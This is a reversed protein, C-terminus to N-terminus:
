EYVPNFAVYEHASDLNFREDFSSIDLEYWENIIISLSKGELYAPDISDGVAFSFTMPNEPDKLMSLLLSEYGAGFPHGIQRMPANYLPIVVKTLNKEQIEDLLGSYIETRERFYEGHQIVRAIQFIFLCGIIPIIFSQKMEVIFMAVYISIFFAVVLFYIEIFPKVNYEPHSVIYVLTFLLTMASLLAAHRFYRKVMLLGVSFILLLAAAIYTTSLYAKLYHNVPQNLFFSKYNETIHEMRAVKEMEGNTSFAIRIILLLMAVGAWILFANRKDSSILPKDKLTAALMCFCLPFLILPHSFLIHVALLGAILHAIHGPLKFSRNFHAVLLLLFSIGVPLESVPMFFSDYTIIWLFVSLAFALKHDKYILDLIIFVGFYFFSINLSYLLMLSSMDTGAQIGIVPLIQTIYSSLRLVPTYFGHNNIMEVMFHPGDLFLMRERFLVASLIVYTLMASWALWRIPSVKNFYARM